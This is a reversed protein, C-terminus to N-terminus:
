LKFLGKLANMKKRSSKIFGDLEHCKSAVDEIDSNSVNGRNISVKSEFDLIAQDTTSGNKLEHELDLQIKCGSTNTNKKSAVIVAQVERAFRDWMGHYKRVSVLAIKVAENDEDKEKPVAPLVPVTTGAGSSTRPISRQCWRKEFEAVDTRVDETDEIVVRTRKKNKEVVIKVQLFVPWELGSNEPIYPHRRSQVTGSSVMARLQQEGEKDSAEKWSMWTSDEDNMDIDAVSQTRTTRNRSAKIHEVFQRAEGATGEKVIRKWESKEFADSMGLRYNFGNYDKKNQAVWEKVWTDAPSPDEYDDEKVAAQSTATSSATSEGSDGSSAASSGAANPAGVVEKKVVAATPQNTGLRAICRALPGDLGAKHVKIPVMARLRGFWPLVITESSFRHAAFAVIM